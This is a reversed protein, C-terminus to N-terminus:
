LLFEYYILPVRRFITRGMERYGCKRYFEGAGATADFADVFIADFGQARAHKGAAAILLRGIGRRQRAPHVAMSTLYLPRRGPTFYSRDIAWPKTKTLRLTGGIEAADRAILVTSTQLDLAVGRETAGRSWFGKGFRASLDAAAANRLAVLAPIDPTTAPGISLRPSQFNM